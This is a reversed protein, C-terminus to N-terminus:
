EVMGRPAEAPVAQHKDTVVSVRATVDAASCPLDHMPVDVRDFASRGPEVGGSDKAFREALGRHGLDVAIGRQATLKQAEGPLRVAREAVVIQCLGVVRHIEAIEDRMGFPVPKLEQRLRLKRHHAVRPNCRSDALKEGAHVPQRALLIEIERAQTPEARAKQAARAGSGVEHQTGIPECVKQHAGAATDNAGGGLSLKGLNGRCARRPDRVGVLGRVGVRQEAPQNFDKRPRRGDRLNAFPVPLAEFFLRSASRRWWADFRQEQLSANRSDDFRMDPCRRERAIGALAWERARHRAPLGTVTFLDGIQAVFGQGQLVDAGPSEKREEIARTRAVGQGLRRAFREGSAKRAVPEDCAHVKVIVQILERLM